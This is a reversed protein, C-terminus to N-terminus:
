PTPAKLKQQDLLKGDHQHIFMFQAALDNTSFGCPGVRRSDGDNFYSWRIEIQTM